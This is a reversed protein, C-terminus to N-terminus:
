AMTEEDHRYLPCVLEVSRPESTEPDYEVGVLTSFRHDGVQGWLAGLDSALLQVVGLSGQTHIGAIALLSGKGDPRLLRGLYGVDYPRAPDSDQGSRYVTGTRRDVVTWPGDEAREWSLVPDQAYTDWM